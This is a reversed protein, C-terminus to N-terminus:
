ESACCQRQRASSHTMCVDKSRQDLVLLLKPKAHSRCFSVAGYLSTEWGEALPMWILHEASSILRENLWRMWRTSKAANDGSWLPPCQSELLHLSYLSLAVFSHLETVLWGSQRLVCVTQIRYFSRPLINLAREPESVYHCLISNNGKRM